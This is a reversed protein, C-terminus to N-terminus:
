FEQISIKNVMVILGIIQRNQCKYIKRKEAASKQCYLNKDWSADFLIMKNIKNARRNVCVPTRNLKLYINTRNM